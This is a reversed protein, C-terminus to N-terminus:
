VPELRGESVAGGGHGIAARNKERREDALATLYHRIQPHRSSLENYDDRPLLLVWSRTRTRVTAMAPSGDLLSMEGFLDGPILTGLLVSPGGENDKADKRKGLSHMVELKGVLVVFLGEGANGEKIVPHEAGLERLRFRSIVQRKEDRSFPKFLASTQILTGVLRARFFRMLLKLVRPDRDILERVAKRSIELFDSNRTAVVTASRPTNTLLAMEGFFAGARLRALERSQEPVQARSERVVSVEGSLILFLSTGMQGQRFVIEETSRHVLKGCDILHRVLDSDLESLLPSTSLTSAVAQVIDVKPEDLSIEISGSPQGEVIEAAVAPKLREVLSISDLSEGFFEPAVGGEGPTPPPVTTPRQPRVYAPTAVAAAAAAQKAKPTLVVIEEPEPEDADIEIIMSSSIAASISDAAPVPVAVAAAAAQRPAPETTMSALAAAPTPIPASREPERVKEPVAPVPATATGAKSPPAVPAVPAVPAAPAPAEDPIGLKQELMRKLRKAGGHTRDLKLVREVVELAESPMGSRAFLDCVHFLSEAAEGSMGLALAAEARATWLDPDYPEARCADRYVELAKDRKGKRELAQGKALLKEAKTPM